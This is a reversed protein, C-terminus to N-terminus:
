FRSETDITVTQGKPDVGVRCTPCASPVSGDKFTGAKFLAQCQDCTVYTARELKVGEVYEHRRSCRTRVGARGFM